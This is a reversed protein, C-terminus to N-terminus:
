ISERLLPKVDLHEEEIRITPRLPIKSEHKERKEFIDPPNKRFNTENPTGFFPPIDGFSIEFKPTSSKDPTGFMDQFNKVTKATKLGLTAGSIINSMFNWMSDLDRIQRLNQEILEDIKDGRIKAQLYLMGKNRNTKSRSEAIIARSLESSAKVNLSNLVIQQQGELVDGAYDTEFVSKFLSADLLVKQDELLRINAEYVQRKADDRSFAGFISVGAVIGGAIQPLAM